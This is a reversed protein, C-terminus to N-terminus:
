RLMLIIKGKGEEFDSLSDKFLSTRHKHRYIFKFTFIVISVLQPCNRAPCDKRPKHNKKLDPRFRHKIKRYVRRIWDLLNKM